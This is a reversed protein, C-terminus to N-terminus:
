RISITQKKWAPEQWRYFVSLSSPKDAQKKTELTDMDIIEFSSKVQGAIKTERAALMQRTGPVWGAFELYGADSSNLSPPLAEVSWKGENQRFLWMERWNEMPQVALTLATGSPNARASATWVVGFTCRKLLPSQVGHKDDTLLVCTEGPQGPSTSVSLGKGPIPAPEAAWRSAGVRVAADQYAFNEDEPMANRDIAALEQRARAAAPQPNEGRRVAQFALGAWVGARRIRVHSKLHDPLNEVQPRELAEARWQDTAAREHPLIDPMVCDHRTLALAARARQEDSSPLALVRKFAEGDYCLRMAGDREFSIMKVGYSAAVDLHGALAIASTKSAQYSARRALRDAMTGLADFAEANINEAPASKLYAAVYGIGMSEAGPTDRLFRVVALLEPADAAKLSITKVQSARIYGGRELRHDYVQLYGLRQGRIELSDGQWLVAQQQASDRPAARLASQDQSVIALATIAELLM